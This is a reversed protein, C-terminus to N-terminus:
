WPDKVEDVRLMGKRNMYLRTWWLNSLPALVLLNVIGTIASLPGGGAEGGTSFAGGIMQLGLSIAAVVLWLIVVDFKNYRFFNTSALVAQMPGLGQVVLAYPMTVLIVSLVLAYLIFLLLGVALLGMAQPDGQLSTTGQSLAPLLFILGALTLFGMLLIALFMNFFHTKGASWMVSTDSKGNELAQRAMGISGATFFANVLSLLVILALFLVAILLIKDMELSGLSGQMQALLEQMDEDNQLLTANMSVMPMSTMFFAALFPVLIIMSVFISLLFPVCLNLNSRWIGFGKGILEGIEEM